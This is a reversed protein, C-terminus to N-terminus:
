NITLAKVDPFQASFFGYGGNVNGSINAPETIFPVAQSSKKLQNLYQYHELSINSLSVALTDRNWNRLTIEGYTPDSSSVLLSQSNLFEFETFGNFGGEEGLESYFNLVYWNDESIPDNIAYVVKLDREENQWISTYAIGGLTVAAMTKTKATVSLGSIPDYIDLLIETGKPLSELEIMYVGPTLENLRLSKDMYKLYVEAKSVLLDQLVVLSEANQGDTIERNELASFSKTILVSMGVGPIYQSSVVLKQPAQDVSIPIPDPFCSVLSLLITIYILARM